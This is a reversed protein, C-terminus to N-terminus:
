RSSGASAACTWGLGASAVRLCRTVVVAPELTTGRAELSGRTTGRGALAAVPGVTM